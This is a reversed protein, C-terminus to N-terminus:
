LIRFIPRHQKHIAGLSFYVKKKEKRKVIIFLIPIADQCILVIKPCNNKALSVFPSKIHIKIEKLNKAVLKVTPDTNQVITAFSIVGSSIMFFLKLVYIKVLILM